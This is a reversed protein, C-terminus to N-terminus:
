HNFRFEASTVLSWILDRVATPRENPRAALYQTVENIEVETPRRTLVSLYLEEAFQAADTIPALRQSLQGGASWGIVTGGNAVFLAQDPTAFFDDQPQGASAAYLVVFPAVNGRMIENLQREVKFDRMKATAPDNAATAKPVTKEIEVDAAPRQPDVIGTAQMLSWAMQEPSLGKLVRVDNSVTWLDVLKERGAALGVEAGRIADMLQNLTSTRMAVLQQRNTLETTAGALNQKAAELTATVEKVASERSTMTQQLTAAEKSLPELRDKLKQSIATLEVDGPLKQLAADTKACADAVTQVIAQKDALASKADELSKTATAMSKEVDVVSAMQKTVEVQQQDVSAVAAALEAKRNEIEARKAALGTLNAQFAVYAESAELRKKRFAVARSDAKHRNWVDILKTKAADVPKRAEQYSAYAADAPVYAEVLKAQVPQVAATQDAITKQLAALEGAFQGQKATLTAVAAAIEKDAPVLKAAESSKAVAENVANIALQKDAAAKQSKAVALLADDVPKKAATVATEATRWATEVPTLATRANKFETQAADVLKQSESEAATLAASETTLAPVQSAANALSDSVDVPAEISRQYTSTLALQRLFSRIDYKMGVFESTILDLVAPHVSPNRPHHLDVPHVLGRGMMHAWLRNAINVNFQRNAGNTALEALKKRRSYKPDPRVGPLPNTVYDEGQRFRPEDIETEGPLQPRIQGSDQTFVSKYTAEGDSKEALFVMKAAEDNFVITRNVFAFLGHYDTQVYHDVLPHDHCQACQLDMGFFIRGIDRTVMNPEADRDLFFKAAPRKAPDVGDASLIERALQDYPVNQEFAAQLYHQWEPTKVHKDPRREMLMVDFVNAMHVSYRPSSLLRDVLAERKVPSPDALFARADAASPITGHLDLTIRRLFEADGVVAAQPGLSDVKILTDIRSALSEQALSVSGTLAMLLFCTPLVRRPLFM